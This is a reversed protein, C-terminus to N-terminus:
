ESNHLKTLARSLVSEAHTREDDTMADLNLELKLNPHEERISDRERHLTDHSDVVQYTAVPYAIGKVTITDQEECLIQDKVQSYTEYSILIEGPTAASELRSALNVGGGIITYDMRAESGFNGVTCFGTNIGIRCVLPKEIGAKRWVSQLEGMRRRMAIAMKVCALTDKKVGETEPDGFFIVIADGVYKDITAGHDLAIKSMETLYHNLLQTLDESELRDATETFGVIDSFFVTLKKRRSELKVTKKGTFISEYVQPSLYKALQDSLQELADSKDALEAERQKLETIDTYVAVIGGDDTRRESVMIWRGDGRQQVHPGGPDLHRALREALWEEIRGKADRIYGSEAARRVIAEFTMGPNIEEAIEPYLLTRYKSNCIVLRDEPDYLSFAESINEIADSLRRRTDRIEKLNSEQVEIATDRFVGLAQAMRGLEDGRDRGPIDVSTDGAALETMAETIRDLPRVIHPGVYYLVVVLAGLLGSVTLVIMLIKGRQITEESGAAAAESVDSAAIVLQAVRDGLLVALNRSEELASQAVAAQRLEDRRLAFISDNSKGMDILATAAERLAQDDVSSPLQDLMREIQGEATVFRERLPQLFTPDTTGAAESLLGAALNGEARLTLVVHLTNAGVEILDRIAATSNKTVGETSLVLDFAAGDIMPTLTVLFNDHAAKLATTRQENELLTANVDKPTVRLQQERLSFINEVGQGAALLRESVQKLKSKLSNEPAQRLNREIAAATALFRERIPQLLVPNDVHLAEALLGAALNGEANITLLRDLSSVGGEVLGTISRRSEATVQEGSIVLDFVADDVLPELTDQFRAKIDSLLDLIAKRQAALHLRREVATNLEALRATMQEAFGILSVFIEPAAETAKLDEILAKLAQARGDLRVQERVREEQSASAMIAPATAAIEASMEALRLSTVMSPISEQTVHTVSRDIDNFVSWAVACAAVTLGALVGFALFLNAKIGFAAPRANNVNSNDPMPRAPGAGNESSM